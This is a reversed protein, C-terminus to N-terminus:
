KTALAISGDWDAPLTDPNLGGMRTIMEKSAPDDPRLSLAVQFKEQASNFDRSLYTEFADHYTKYYKENNSDITESAEGYVEFVKM